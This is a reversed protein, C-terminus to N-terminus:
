FYVLRGSVLSINEAGFREVASLNQPELTALAIHFHLSIRNM